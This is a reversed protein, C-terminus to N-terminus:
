LKDTNSLPESPSISQSAHELNAKETSKKLKETIDKAEELLGEHEKNAEEEVKEKSKNLFKAMIGSGKSTFHCTREIYIRTTSTRTHGLYDGIEELPLGNKHLTTAVYRRITYPRIYIGTEEELSEFLSRIGNLSLGGKQTTSVFLSQENRNKEQRCKMYDVYASVIHPLLIYPRPRGKQKRGQIVIKCQSSEFFIDSCKLQAIECNRAGLYTMLHLLFINRYRQLDTQKRRRLHYEIKEIEEQSSVIMLKKVEKFKMIGSLRNVEIVEDNKLWNLYISLNKTYSNATVGSIGRKEKLDAMDKTVFKKRNLQELTLTGINRIIFRLSDRVNRVTYDSKGFIFYKNVFNEWHLWLPTEGEPVNKKFGELEELPLLVKLTEKSAM